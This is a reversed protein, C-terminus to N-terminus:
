SPVEETPPAFDGPIEGPVRQTHHGTGSLVEEGDPYPRVVGRMRVLTLHIGILLAVLV